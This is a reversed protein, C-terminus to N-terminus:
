RSLPILAESLGDLLRTSVTKCPTDAKPTAGELVALAARVLREVNEKEMRM